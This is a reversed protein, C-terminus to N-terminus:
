FRPVAFPLRISELAVGPATDTTALGRYLLAGLLIPINQMRAALASPVASAAQSLSLSSVARVRDHLNSLAEEVVGGDQAAYLTQYPEHKQSVTNLRLLARSSVLELIFGEILIRTGRGLAPLRAAVSNCLHPLTLLRLPSQLSSLASQLVHDAFRDFCGDERARAAYKGVKREARFRDSQGSIGGRVAVPYDDPKM